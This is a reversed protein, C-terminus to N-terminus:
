PPSLIFETGPIPLHEGYIVRIEAALDDAVEDMSLAAPMCRAMSTVGYGNLGCPVIVDFDAPDLLVNLALGHFCIGRSLAVGVAGIKRFPEEGGGRTFVGRIGEIRTSEIGYRRTTRMMAEELNAVHAPPSVRRAALDLVPYAVIQGPGHYTVDGGRETRVVSIGRAGLIEPSATIHDDRGKRGLTITPPHSLIFLVEGGRGERLEAAAKKQMALAEGYPVTRLKM